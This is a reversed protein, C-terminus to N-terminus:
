RFEFVDYSIVIVLGKNDALVHMVHEASTGGLTGDVSRRVCITLLPFGVPTVVYHIM